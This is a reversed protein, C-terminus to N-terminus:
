LPEPADVGNVLGNAWHGDEGWYPGVHALKTSTPDLVLWTEALEIMKFVRLTVLLNRAQMETLWDEPQCSIVM